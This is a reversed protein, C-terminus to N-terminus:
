RTEAWTKARPRLQKQITLFATTQRIGDFAPHAMANLVELANNASDCSSVNAGRDICGRFLLSTHLVDQGTCYDLFALASSAAKQLHDLAASANGNEAEYIALATHADGIDNHFFGYDGDEYFLAFLDLVKQQRQAMEEKTYFPEGASTTFNWMMRRRIYHLVDFLLDQECRIRQDGSFLSPLVFNRSDAMDPLRSLIEQAGKTNGDEAYMRALATIAPYRLRDESCDAVIRENRKMCLARQQEAEEATYMNQRICVFVSYNLANMIEYDDPYQKLLAELAHVAEKNQGNNALTQAQSFLANRKEQMSALDIGLLTDSTVHFYHCLAPIQSIDPATRECEWQSIAKASIGLADALDEQTLDRKRRLNRITTGISM